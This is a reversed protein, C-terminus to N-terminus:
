SVIRTFSPRPHLESSSQKRQKKRRSNHQRERGRKEGSHDEASQERIAKLVQETVAAVLHPQLAESEQQAAQEASGAAAPVPRTRRGRAPRKSGTTENMM